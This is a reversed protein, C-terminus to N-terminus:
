EKKKLIFYVEETQAHCPDTTFGDLVAVMDFYNYSLHLINDISHITHVHKEKYCIGPDSKEIIELHVEINKKRKKYVNKWIYSFTSYEKSFVKNEFNEKVNYETCSDFIFFGGKELHMWVNKFARELDHETHMYNITDHVCLVLDYNRDISFDRIDGLYLGDESGSRKMKAGAAEIMHPSIDLMDATYDMKALEVALSGTGGGIDIIMTHPISYTHILTRIYGAWFAYDVHSMIEDYYKALISYSSVNKYSIHPSRIGHFLNIFFPRM